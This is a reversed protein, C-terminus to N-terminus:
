AKGGDRGARAGPKSFLGIAILLAAGCCVAIDAVNFSPYSWFFSETDIYFCLFDVM